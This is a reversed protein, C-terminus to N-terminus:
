VPWTRVTASSTPLPPTALSSVRAIVVRSAGSANNLDAHAAIGSDIVAVGIGTGNLAYAAAAIDAEVATFVARDCSQGDNGPRSRPHHLDVNPDKALEEVMSAPIHRTAARISNFKLRIIAGRGQMDKLHASTPMQRHQVIATVMGDQGVHDNLDASFKSTAAAAGTTIMNTVTTVPTLHTGWVM